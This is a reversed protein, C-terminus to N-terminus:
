HPKSRANKCHRQNVGFKKNWEVWLKPKKFGVFKPNLLFWCTQSHFNCHVCVVINLFIHLVSFTHFRSPSHFIWKNKLYKKDVWMGGGVM